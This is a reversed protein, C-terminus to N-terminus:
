DVSATHGDNRNALYGLVTTDISTSIAHVSGDCLVFQCVSPHSSGFQMSFVDIIASPDDDSLALPYSRGAVRHAQSPVDDSWFTHDGYALEGQHEPPVWKEGILLTKSLGDKIDSFRLIIKWNIYRHIPSPGILEGTLHFQGDHTSHAVGNEPSPNAGGIGWWPYVSGDGAHIAYDCLAGGNPQTWGGRSNGSQSLFVTRARSPCHYLPVQMQVVASPQVYYTKELDYGNSGGQVLNAQELYPMLLALWTAHGYGSLYSPVIGGRQEHFMHVSLGIQKLNNQCQLRRAAERAAQVAPLLLAILIGIITIVVLLEVLTFGRLSKPPYVASPSDPFM